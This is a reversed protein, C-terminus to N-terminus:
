KKEESLDEKPITILFKAGMGFESEVAITGKFDNEIIDKSIALGIGTGKETNKTTFFPNFIKGIIEKKIGCGWDQVEMKIQRDFDFISILIEKKNGCNEMNEYSDVANSILHTLFHNFKIPDGFFEIYDPQNVVIDVGFIRAKRAIVQVVKEIEDLTSFVIREDNKQLQRRASQVFGEMRKTGFIADDLLEKFNGYNGNKKCTENHIQELDLSVATLPNIIDHLFGGRLGDM